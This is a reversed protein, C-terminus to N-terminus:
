SASSEVVVSRAVYTVSPQMVVRVMNWLSATDELTLSERLLEVGEDEQFVSKGAARPSGGNLQEASLVPTDELARMAWGLLVQQREPTSAWATVLYHLDVPVAPARRRQAAPPTKRVTTTQNPSVRYLCLTVGEAPPAALDSTKHLLLKANKLEDPRVRELLSLIASSVTAFAHITAL